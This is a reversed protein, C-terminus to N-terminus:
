GPEKGQVYRREDFYETGHNKCNGKHTIGGSFTTLYECGDVEVEIITERAIRADEIAQAETQDQRQEAAYLREGVLGSGLVLMMFVPLFVVFKFEGCSSTFPAHPDISM